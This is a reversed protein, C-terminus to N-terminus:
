MVMTTEDTASKMSNGAASFSGMGMPVACTDNMTFQSTGAPRGIVAAGDGFGRIRGTSSSDGVTSTRDPPVRHGGGDDDHGAPNRM